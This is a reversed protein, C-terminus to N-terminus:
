KIYTSYKIQGLSIGGDNAPVRQHWYVKFNEETLRNITKELLYKNQFCGGTLVVKEEGALKSINVIIESLTNHFKLAIINVSVSNELDALIEEVLKSRNIIYTDKSKEIDFNFYDNLKLGDTAFEMEMAAQAEFNVEQRLGIISAIGDFLRGMSTTVPSNIGNDIMQKILKFDNFNRDKFVPLHTLEFVKEGFVEYLLAFGVRRIEKIAKEGGALRFPKLHAVRKFNEGNYCDFIRKGLNHRRHRVRHRGMFCGACKATLITKLWVLFFMRMTISFLIFTIESLIKRM